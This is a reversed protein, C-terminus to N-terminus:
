FFMEMGTRLHESQEKIISKIQALNNRAEELEEFVMMVDERVGAGDPIGGFVKKRQVLTSQGNLDNAPSREYLDLETTIAYAHFRALVCCTAINRLSSFVLPPELFFYKPPSPQGRM